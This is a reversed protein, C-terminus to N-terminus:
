PAQEAGSSLADGTPTEAKYYLFGYNILDNNHTEGSASDQEHAPIWARVRLIIDQDVNPQTGDILDILDVSLPRAFVGHIGAPDSDSEVPIWADNLDCADISSGFCKSVAWTSPWPGGGPNLNQQGHFANISLKRGQWTRPDDGYFTFGTDPDNLPIIGEDLYIKVGSPRYLPDGYIIGSVATWGVYSLSEGLTRGSYFAGLFKNAPAFAYGGTLHHSSSGWWAIGGLRDIANPAWDGRVTQSLDDSEFSAVVNPILNTPVPIDDETLEILDLDFYGRIEDQRRAILQVIIRDVPSVDPTLNFSQSVSTWDAQPESVDFIRARVKVVDNSPDGDLDQQYFTMRIIFNGTEQGHAAGGRRYKFGARFRKNETFEIPPDLNITHSFNIAILEPCPLIAARTGPPNLCMPRDVADLSGFHAYKSGYPSPALIHPMIKEAEGGSPADWGAPAFGYYQVPFSRLQWGLFGRAIGVCNTNIQRFYDKSRQRCEKIARPDGLDECLPTCPPNQDDPHKYRWNIMNEFGSFADHGPDGGPPVGQGIYIGTDVAYPISQIKGADEPGLQQEGPILGTDTAGARCMNHPWDVNPNDLYTAPDCSIPIIANEIGLDRSSSLDAFFDFTSMNGQVLFKGRIGKQETDLTRDILDLTRDTTIAEIRGYAVMRDLAPNAQRIYSKMSNPPQYDDEDRISGDFPGHPVRGNDDALVDDNYISYALYYDFSPENNDTEWITDILRAPIGKIIVLHTIPSEAALEEGTIFFCSTDSRGLINECIHQRVWRMARALEWAGAFHGPAVSIPCIYKHDIGRRDAYYTAIMEADSTNTNYVILTRNILDLDNPGDYEFGDLQSVCGPDAGPGTGFDIFSDGDNDFGDWCQPVGLGNPYRGFTLIAEIDGDQSDIVNALINGRVAGSPLPQGNDDLMLVSDGPSPNLIEQYDGPSSGYTNFYFRVADATYFGNDPLEIGGVIMYAQRNEFDAVAEVPSVRPLEDSFNILAGLPLYQFTEGNVTIAEITLTVRSVHTSFPTTEAIRENIASILKALEPRQPDLLSFTHAYAPPENAPDVVMLSEVIPEEQVGSTLIVKYEAITSNPPNSPWTATFEGRATSTIEALGFNPSTVEGPEYVFVRRDHASFKPNCGALRISIALTFIGPEPFTVEFIPSRQYPYTILCDNRDCLALEYELPKGGPANALIRFEYPEVHTPSFVEAAYPGVIGGFEIETSCDGDGRVAGTSFLVAALCILITRQSM